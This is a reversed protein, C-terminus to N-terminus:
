QVFQKNQNGSCFSSKSQSKNSKVCAIGQKDTYAKRAKAYCQLLVKAESETCMSVDPKQPGGPVINKRSKDRPFSLMLEDEDSDIDIIIDEDDLYEFGHPVYTSTESEKYELADSGGSEDWGLVDYGIGAWSMRM